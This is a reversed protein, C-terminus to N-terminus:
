EETHTATLLVNPDGIFRATKKNESIGLVNSEIMFDSFIGTMVYTYGLSSDKKVSEELAKRVQIKV